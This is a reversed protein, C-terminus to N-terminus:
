SASLTLGETMVEFLEKVKEVKIDDRPEGRKYARGQPVLDSWHVLQVMPYMGPMYVDLIAWSPLVIWSHEIPGFKGDEVRLPRAGYAKLADFVARALEHCRITSGDPDDVMEVLEQATDRWRMEEESFIHVAAHGKM